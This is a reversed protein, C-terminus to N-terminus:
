NKFLINSKKSRKRFTMGTVLNQGSLNKKENKGTKKVASQDCPSGHSRWFGQTGPGSNEKKVISAVCVFQHVPVGAKHLVKGCNKKM